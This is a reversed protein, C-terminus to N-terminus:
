VAATKAEQSTSSERAYEFCPCIYLYAVSQLCDLGPLSGSVERDRAQTEETM